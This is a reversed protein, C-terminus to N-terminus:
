RQLITLFDRIWLLRERRFASRLILAWLLGWIAAVAVVLILGGVDEIWFMWINPVGTIVAIAAAGWWVNLSRQPTPPRRSQPDMM